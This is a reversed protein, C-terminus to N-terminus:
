NRTTSHQRTVHLTKQLSTKWSKHIMEKLQFFFFQKHKSTYSYLVVIIGVNKLNFILILKLHLLNKMNPYYLM